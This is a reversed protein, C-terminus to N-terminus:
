ELEEFEADLVDRARDFANPAFHSYIRYTLDVSRHGLWRSVDTIPVNNSLAVSAFVHRLDHPTFASPLGAKDRSNVFSEYYSLYKVYEHSRGRLLYGTETVGYERIHADIREAVYGPLPIERSDGPKRHKLPGLRPPRDLVQETIRLRGGGIGRENVALAEGIRLGCGRMLWVTIAWDDPLGEALVDLQKRTPMYFEAAVQVAPLKIGTAPNARIRGARIAESLVANILVYATGIQSAGVPKAPMTELLLDRIEDRTVRRIAKGGFAPAIHKLATRYTSKSNEAGPHQAIWREAYAEFTVDGAKPDIYDGSRKEHEVQAAFDNALSKRDHPFTKEHQRGNARYRVVWGHKCHRQDPCDCKKIVTALRREQPLTSVKQQGVRSRV